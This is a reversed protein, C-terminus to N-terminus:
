LDSCSIQIIKCSPGGSLHVLLSLNALPLLSTQRIEMSIRQGHSRKYRRTQAPPRCIETGRRHPTVCDRPFRTNCLICINGVSCNGYRRAQTISRVHFLSWHWGALGVAGDMKEIAYALIGSFAGEVTAASFFLATRHCAEHRQYWLTFRMTLQLALLPYVTCRWPFSRGRCGWSFNLLSSDETAKSM